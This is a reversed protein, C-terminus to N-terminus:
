LRTAVKSVLSVVSPLFASNYEFTILALYFRIDKHKRRNKRRNREERHRKGKDTKNLSPENVDTLVANGQIWNKSNLLTM